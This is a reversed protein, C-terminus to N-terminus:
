ARKTGPVVGEAILSPGSVYTSNDPLNLNPRNLINFFKARFELNGAEGLYPLRTDKNLSNQEVFTFDWARLGPGGRLM